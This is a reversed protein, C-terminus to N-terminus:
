QQIAKAKTSSKLNFESRAFLLQTYKNTLVYTEVKLFVNEFKQSLWGFPSINLIQTSMVSFHVAFISLFTSHTRTFISKSLSCITYM